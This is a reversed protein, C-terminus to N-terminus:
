YVLSLKIIKRPTTPCVECSQQPTRSQAYVITYMKGGGQKGGQLPSNSPTKFKVIFIFLTFSIFTM